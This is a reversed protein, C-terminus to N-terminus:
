KNSSLHQDIESSKDVFYVVTAICLQLEIFFFACSILHASERAIEENLEKIPVNTGWEQWHAWIM